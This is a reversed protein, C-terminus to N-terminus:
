RPSFIKTIQSKATADVLLEDEVLIQLGAYVGPDVIETFDIKKGLIQKIEEKLHDNIKVSSTLEVKYIGKKTRDLREVEKVILDIKNLDSNRSLLHLFNRIAKKADTTKEKELVSFLASAYQKVSYKM